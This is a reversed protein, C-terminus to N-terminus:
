SCAVILMALLKVAGWASFPRVLLALADLMILNIKGGVIVNILVTATGGVWMGASHGAGFLHLIGYLVAGVILGLSHSLFESFPLSHGM